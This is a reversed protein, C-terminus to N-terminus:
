IDTVLTGNASDSEEAVPFVCEYKFGPKLTVSDWLETQPKRYNFYFKKHRAPDASLIRAVTQVSAGTQTSLQLWM